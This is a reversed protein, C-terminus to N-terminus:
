KIDIFQSVLCSTFLIIFFWGFLGEIVAIYRMKGKVGMGSYGLTVFYNISIIISAFSDIFIINVILRWIPTNSYSVSKPINIKNIVSNIYRLMGKKKRLYKNNLLLLSNLIHKCPNLYQMVRQLYFILSFGLIINITGCIARYVDTSYESYWGLINLVYYKIFKRSSFYDNHWQNWFIGKQVTKYTRYCIESEERKNTYRLYDILLSYSNIIDHNIIEDTIPDIQSYCPIEFIENKIKYGMAYPWVYRFSYINNNLSTWDIIANDRPFMMGALNIPKLFICSKIELYDSIIINKFLVPGSFNCRELTLNKYLKRNLPDTCFARFDCVKTPSKFKVDFLHLSVPSQEQLWLNGNITTTQLFLNQSIKNDNRIHFDNTNIGHGEINSNPEKDLCNYIYIGDRVRLSVLFISSNGLLGETICNSIILKGNVILDILLIRQFKCNVIAVDSNIIDDNFEIKDKPSQIVFYDKIVGGKLLLGKFESYTIVKKALLNNSYIILLIFLLQKM